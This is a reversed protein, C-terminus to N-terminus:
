LFIKLRYIDDQNEIEFVAYPDVDWGKDQIDLVAVLGYTFYSEVIYAAIVKYGYNKEIMRFGDAAEVLIDGGDVMKAKTIEVTGYGKLKLEM